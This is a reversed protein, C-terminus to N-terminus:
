LQRLEWTMLFGFFFFYSLCNLWINENRIGNIPLMLFFFVIKGAESIWFCMSSFILCIFWGLISERGAFVHWFKLNMSIYINSLYASTGLWLCATYNLELLGCFCTKLCRMSVLLTPLQCSEAESMKM